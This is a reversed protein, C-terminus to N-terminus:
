HFLHGNKRSKLGPQRNETLRRTMIFAPVDKFITTNGASMSYTGIKCFQHIATFGGLIVGDGITVHGALTSNNAM